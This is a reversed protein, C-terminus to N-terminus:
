VGQVALQKDIVLLNDLEGSPLSPSFLILFSPDFYSCLIVSSSLVSGFSRSYRLLPLVIEGPSARTHAPLKRGAARMLSNLSAPYLM